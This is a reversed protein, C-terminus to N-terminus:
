EHLDVEKMEDTSLYFRRLKQKAQHYRWLVTGYPIHLYEAIERLKFDGFVHLMVVQYEPSNLCQLAQAALIGDLSEKEFERIQGATEPLTEVSTEYHAGRVYYKAINRTIGFIWARGNAGSRYRYACERLTLFVEQAVDEAMQKDVTISVALLYVPQYMEEYLQDFVKENGQALATLWRDALNKGM